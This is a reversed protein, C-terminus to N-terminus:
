DEDKDTPTFLHQTQALRKKPNSPETHLGLGQLHHEAVHLGRHASPHRGRTEAELRLDSPRSHVRGRRGGGDGGGIVILHQGVPLDLCM